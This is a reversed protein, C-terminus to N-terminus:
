IFIKIIVEGLINKRTYVKKESKMVMPPPPHNHKMSVKDKRMATKPKASVQAPSHVRQQYQVPQQQLRVQYDHDNTVAM